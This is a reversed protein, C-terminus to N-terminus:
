PISIFFLLDIPAEFVLLDRGQGPWNFVYHFDSGEVTM